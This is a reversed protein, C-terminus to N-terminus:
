RQTLLAQLTQRLAGWEDMVTAMMKQNRVIEASHRGLKCHSILDETLWPTPLRMRQRTAAQEVEATAPPRGLSKALKEVLRKKALDQKYSQVDKSSRRGTRRNFYVIVRFKPEAPSLVDLNSCDRRCIISHFRVPQRAANFEFVLDNLETDLELFREVVTTARISAKETLGGIATIWQDFGSRAAPRNLFDLTEGPLTNIWRVAQDASLFFSDVDKTFQRAARIGLVPTMLETRRSRERLSFKAKAGGDPRADLLLYLQIPSVKMKNSHPRWTCFLSARPRHLRPRESDLHGRVRGINETLRETCFTMHDILGTLSNFRRETAVNLKSIFPDLLAKDRVNKPM